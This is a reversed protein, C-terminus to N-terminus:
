KVDNEGVCAFPNDDAVASTPRCSIRGRSAPSLGFQQALRAFVDVQAKYVTAAPHKKVEGTKHNITTCGAAQMESSAQDMLAYSMCLARFAPRDIEALVGKKLLKPAILRWFEAAKGDLDNPCRFSKARDPFFSQEAKPYRAM